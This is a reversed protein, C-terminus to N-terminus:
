HGVVYLLLHHVKVLRIIWSFTTAVTVNVDTPAKWTSAHIVATVMTVTVNM